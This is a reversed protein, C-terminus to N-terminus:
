NLKTAILNFILTGTYYNIENDYFVPLSREWEYLLSRMVGSEELKYNHLLTIVREMVDIININDKKDLVQIQMDYARVLSNTMGEDAQTATLKGFLLMTDFNYQKISEFSKINKNSGTYGLLTKLTDDATLRTLITKLIEKM